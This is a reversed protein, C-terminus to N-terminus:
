WETTDDMGFLLKMSIIILAATQVDYRPVVARSSGCCTLLTEDAMGACEMLRCIWPHLEDLGSLLFSADGEDDTRDLNFTHHSVVAERETGCVATNGTPGTVPCILM